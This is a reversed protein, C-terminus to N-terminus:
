GTTDMFGSTNSFDKFSFVKVHTHLQVVEHLPTRRATDQKILKNELSVPERSATPEPHSVVSTIMSMSITDPAGSLSSTLNLPSTLDKENPECAFALYVTGQEKGTKHDFVKLPIGTSVNKLQEITMTMYQIKSSLDLAGEGLLDDSLTGSDYVAVRLMTDTTDKPFSFVEDFVAAGGVNHQVMTKHSVNGFTIKVLSDAYHERRLEDQTCHLHM